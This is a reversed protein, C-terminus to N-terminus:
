AAFPKRPTPAASPWGWRRGCAYLDDTLVRELETRSEARHLSALQTLAEDIGMACALEALEPEAEARALVCSAAVLGVYARALAQLCDQREVAHMGLSTRVRDRSAELVGAATEWRQALSGTGREHRRPSPGRALVDSGLHVLLVDNAGEFIRTVRCDRTLLAVGVDELVGMAGHLQQARDTIEYAGESCFVKAVVSATALAGGPHRAVDDVVAEMAFLRAAMASVHARSAGFEGIRRRFQRRRTVHDLTADLARQATGVCGASLVTRGVALAAYAHHLGSGPVGLCASARAGDFAVSTTSSARLGLKHEEAGVSVHEQPLPVTLLAYGGRKDRARALVTVLGAIAGNTVYQKEGHLRLADDFSTGISSLDSGAGAETAAFAAIVEGSALRPLWARKHQEEGLSVLPTAGLGNHLGVCTALSRDHRALTAVVRCTEVLELGLGGYETPIGSGFLGLERVADMLRRPLVGRRDHDVADVEAELAREVEAFLRAIERESQTGEREFAGNREGVHRDAVHRDEFHREAM